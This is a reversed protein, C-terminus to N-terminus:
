CFVKLALSWVEWIEQGYFRKKKEKLADEGVACEPCAQEVAWKSNGSNRYYLQVSAMSMKQKKKALHVQTKILKDVLQCVLDKSVVFGHSAPILAWPNKNCLRGEKASFPFRLSDM